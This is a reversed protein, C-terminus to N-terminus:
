GTGVLGPPEIRLSVEFDQYWLTSAWITAVTNRATSQDEAGKESTLTGGNPHSTLERIQRDCALTQCMCACSHHEQAVRSLTVVHFACKM